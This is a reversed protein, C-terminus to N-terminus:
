EDSFMDFIPGAEDKASTGKQLCNRVIYGCIKAARAPSLVLKRAQAEATIAEVTESALAASRDDSHGQSGLVLWELTVGFAACFAVAVSLPLERKEAEYNKYAKDSIELMAAAKAQSVRTRAREAAMRAGIGILATM